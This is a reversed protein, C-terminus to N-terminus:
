KEIIGAKEFGGIEVVHEFADGVGGFGNKTMEDGLL